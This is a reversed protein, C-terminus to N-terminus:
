PPHQTPRWPRPLSDLTPAITATPGVVDALAEVTKLRATIMAGGARRASSARPPWNPWPQSPSGGRDRRLDRRAHWLRHRRPGRRRDRGACCWRFRIRDACVLRAPNGHWRSPSRTRSSRGSHRGHGRCLRDCALVRPRPAPCGVSPRTLLGVTYLRRLRAVKYVSQGLRDACSTTPRQWGLQRRSSPWPRRAEAHLPVNVNVFAWRSAREYSPWLRNVTTTAARSRFVSARLRLDDHGQGERPRAPDSSWDM